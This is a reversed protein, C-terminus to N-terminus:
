KFANAQKTNVCTEYRALNITEIIEKSTPTIKMNMFQTLLNKCLWDYDSGDLVNLMLVIFWEDLTPAVGNIFVQTLSEHIESITTNTEVSSSFKATLATHMANLKSIIGDQSTHSKLLAWADAALQITTLEQALSNDVQCGLTGIIHTNYQMWATTEDIKSGAPPEKITGDLYGNLGAEMFSCKIERSWKAWGGEVLKDVGRIKVNYDIGM